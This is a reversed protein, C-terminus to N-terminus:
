LNFLKEKQLLNLMIVDVSEKKNSLTRSHFILFFFFSFLCFFYLRLRFSLKFVRSIIVECFLALSGFLVYIEPNCICRM